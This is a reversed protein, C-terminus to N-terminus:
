CDNEETEEGMVTEYQTLPFVIINEKEIYRGFVRYHVDRTWNMTDVILETLSISSLEFGHTDDGFDNPVKFALKEFENCPQLAIEKKEPNILLRVRKPYGIALISQQNIRIKYWKTSFFMKYKSNEM